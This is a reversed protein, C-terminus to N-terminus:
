FPWGVEQMSTTTPKSCIRDAEPLPLFERAFYQFILNKAKNMEITNWLNKHYGFILLYTNIDSCCVALNLIRVSPFHM